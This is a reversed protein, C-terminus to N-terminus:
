RIVQNLDVVSLSVRNSDSPPLYGAGIIVMLEPRDRFIRLSRTYASPQGVSYYRWARPDGLAQNAWIEGQYASLVITGNDGGGWPTWVVYPGTTPSRRGNGSVLFDPADRFQTPDEAIRYHIPFQYNSFSPDGGYEYAYFYRGDPLRAVSPMGPRSASNDYIADYTVPTWTHLDTTTQHSTVQGHNQPRQDAYYLIITDEHM